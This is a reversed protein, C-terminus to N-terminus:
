RGLLYAFKQDGFKPFVGELVSKQVDGSDNFMDKVVAPPIVLGRPSDFEEVIRDLIDYWTYCAIKKIAEIDKRKIKFNM